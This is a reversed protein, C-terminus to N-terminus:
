KSLELANSYNTVLVNIYGGKIAGKIAELKSSGGALAIVTEIDRLNELPYGFVKRNSDSFDKADGDANYTQMCIDGVAKRKRMLEVDKKDFYGTAMATSNQDFPTGLGVVAVNVRKMMEMVSKIGLEEQFMKIINPDSVVAPAHLMM